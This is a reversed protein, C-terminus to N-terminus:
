KEEGGAVLAKFCYLPKKTSKVLLPLTKHEFLDILQNVTRNIICVKVEMSRSFNGLPFGNM